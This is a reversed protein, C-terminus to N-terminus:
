IKLLKLFMVLDKIYEEKEEPQIIIFNKACNISIKMFTECAFDQVGEYSEHM